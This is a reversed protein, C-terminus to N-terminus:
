IVFAHPRSLVSSLTCRASPLPRGDHSPRVGDNKGRSTGPCRREEGELLGEQEGGGADEERGPAALSAAIEGRYDFCVPGDAPSGPSNIFEVSAPGAVLSHTLPGSGLYLCFVAWGDRGSGGRPLVSFCQQGQGCKGFRGRRAQTIKM